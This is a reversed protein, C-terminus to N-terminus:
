VLNGRAMKKLLKIATLTKGSKCLGNILTGCSVEDLHFGKAIVNDHFDLAKGVDNDICLGNMLTNLIRTNPQCGMKLIKGLTSFAFNMLGVHCYCNILVSLTVFSPTFGKSEALEYLSIATPYHKMRALSGLIKTIQVISPPPRGHLLTHFSSVAEEISHPNSSNSHFFHLTLAYSDSFVSSSLSSASFLCVKPFAYRSARWFM